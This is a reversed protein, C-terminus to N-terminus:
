PSFSLKINLCFMTHISAQHKAPQRTLWEAAKQVDRDNKQLAEVVIGQPFGPKVLSDVLEQPVPDDQEVKVMLPGHVRGKRENLPTKRLTSMKTKPLSLSLSLSCM